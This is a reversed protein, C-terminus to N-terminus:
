GMRWLEIKSWTNSIYALALGPLLIWSFKLWAIPSSGFVDVVILAISGAFFIALVSKAEPRWRLFALYSYIGLCGSLLLSNDLVINRLGWQSHTIRHTAWDFYIAIGGIACLFIGELAAV